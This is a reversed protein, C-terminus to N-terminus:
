NSYISKYMLRHISHIWTKLPGNFLIRYKIHKWSYCLKLVFDHVNVWVELRKGPYLRRRPVQLTVPTTGPAPDTATLTDTM